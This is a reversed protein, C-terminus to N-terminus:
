ESKSTISEWFLLAAGICIFSDAINFAPYHWNKWYFLIFDVVQGYILRDIVNGLAGGIILAAAWKGKQGFQNHLIGWVLWACIVIALVIFFYKQWGNHNALFSFAAGPNFVLTLDFFHPFVTVREMYHFRSLILLKSAQDLIIIGLSTLWFLLYNM